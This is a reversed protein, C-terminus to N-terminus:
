GWAPFAGSTAAGSTAPLIGEYNADAEDSGFALYNVTTELVENTMAVEEIQFIVGTLAKAFIATTPASCASGTWDRSTGDVSRDDGIYAAIRIQDKSTFRTDNGEARRRLDHNYGLLTLSGTIDRKGVNIDVPFLTGNLTYFREANNNITMSFERVQNSHFLNGTLDCAGVGNVTFDNWTLVRAPSLFDTITPQSTEQPYYEAERRQSIVGLDITAMDEKAINLTLENVISNVYKFAAHNAYRLAIDTDWYCLRGYSDRTLAWGWVSNLLRAAQEKMETPDPCGGVLNDAVVPFNLTGEAMKPGLWYATRDIRGDIVDAAQIEQSLNIDAGTVRLQIEGAPVAGIDRKFNLKVFGVWGMHAYHAFAGGSGSGYNAETLPQNTPCTGPTCPM